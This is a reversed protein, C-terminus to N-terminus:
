PDLVRTYVQFPAWYFPKSLSSSSHLLRLKASRLADVPADGRALGAYLDDMLEVTSRDSVDWLGAIVQRAGARMFVWAFGILGEGSYSRSGATRCASLTVLRANLKRGVIDRAYLRPGNPGDSLIVASDLPVKRSSSAHATFHIWSFRELPSSLFAAPNADAGTLTEIPVHDLRAAIAEIESGAHPLPPFSPESQEPDGVLLLAPAVETEPAPALLPSLAPAVSITLDEILYHPKDGDVLLTEFNLAHLPGDPVIVLTSGPPLADRIPAVLLRYLERGAPHGSELPDRWGSELVQRHSDVLEALRAHAEIPVRRSENEDFLWAFSGLPSIWYSVFKVDHRRAAARVDDVGPLRGGIETSGALLTQARSREIAHLAEETKGLELLLAVYRQFIAIPESLFSMQSEVRLLQDRSREVTTVAAEYAELAKASRGTRQWAAAEGAQAQWIVDPQDHARAVSGFLEIAREHHGLASALEGEALDVFALGDADDLLRFGGRAEDILARVGDTDGQSTLARALELTADAAVKTAGIQRSREAARRFTEVAAALDGQSRQLQGLMYLGQVLWIENGADRAVELEQYRAEISREFDGVRWWCISLNGAAGGALVNAGEATALERCREYCSIAEDWRGAQHRTVGLGNLAVATRFGDGTEEALALADLYAREAGELDGAYLRAKGILATADAVIDSLGQEAALRGCAELAAIADGEEGRAILLYGQVYLWHARLADDGDAMERLGAVIGEAADLAEPRFSGALIFARLLEFRASWVPDEVARAGTEALELVQPQSGAARWAAVAEDYLTAPDAPSSATPPPPSGCAAAAAVVLGALAAGIEARAPRRPVGEIV